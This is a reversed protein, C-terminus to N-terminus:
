ACTTKWPPETPLLAQFRAIQADMYAGAYEGNLFRPLAEEFFRQWSQDEFGPDIPYFLVNNDLAAKMDGPADGIMLIKDLDYKGVAGHALHEKKSGLEQGAILGVHAKIGHEAWERDLAEVPTASVVMVDAKDQLCELSERVYPFPPVNHVIEGVTRNVAESWALAQVLDPDGTREVERKLTPNSLKTERRIWDRLGQLAPLKPRRAQVEARNALLDFTKVLAPFRNIGRWQSYLNIFEGAERAYKSIAALGYSKIINPIFCEKHKVEMTDFACGDSDIGVFFDRRKEFQRLAHQPDSSAAM